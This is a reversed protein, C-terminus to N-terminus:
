QATQGQLSALLAQVAPDNPDVQPAAAPAPAPAPAPAAPAAPVTPAPATAPTAAPAPQNMQGAAHATVWASARQDDAGENFPLLAWADFGSKTQVKGIRGLIMTAGTSLRSVIGAHTVNIREALEQGAEDLDVLDVIAQDIEENRLNDFRKAIEHVITILVLHGDRDAPKFFGGGSKPQNFQM